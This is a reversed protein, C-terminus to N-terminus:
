SCATSGPGSKVVVVDWGFATPVRRLHVELLRRAAQAPTQAVAAATMYPAVGEATLVLLDSSPEDSLTGDTNQRLPRRVWLTVAGRLDNGLLSSRYQWPGTASGDDLVVGFGAGNGLSDCGGGEFNRTARTFPATPPVHPATPLWAGGRAPPLVTAWSM